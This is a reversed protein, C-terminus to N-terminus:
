VTVTLRCAHGDPTSNFQIRFLACHTSHPTVRRARYTKPARHPKPARCAPMARRAACQLNSTPPSMFFATAPLCVHRGDSGRTCCRRRRDNSILRYVPSPKVTVSGIPATSVAQHTFDRGSPKELAGCARPFFHGNAEFANQSM